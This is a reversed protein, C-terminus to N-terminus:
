KFFLFFFILLNSNVRLYDFTEYKLLIIFLNKEEWIRFDFKFVIDFYRRYGDEVEEQEIALIKILEVGM